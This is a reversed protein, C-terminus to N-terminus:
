ESLFKEAELAAMCGSGAASVAQRYKADQVDGCAFVGTISTKTSDPKTIIYGVEDMHMGTDRLFSTNPTHGIAYFLGSVALESKKSPEKSNYLVVSELFQNGKAEEVQTEWLVQIKEHELIRKQMSKSARLENRRVAIYVTSGFKTLFHAEECATDGGGIVLLPKNRFLPM